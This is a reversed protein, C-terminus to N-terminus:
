RPVHLTTSCPRRHIASLFCIWSPRRSSEPGVLVGHGISEKVVVCRAKYASRSSGVRLDSVLCALYTALAAALTWTHASAVLSSFSSQFLEGVSTPSDPLLSAKLGLLVSAGVMGM